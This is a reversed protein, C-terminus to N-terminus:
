SQLGTQASHRSIEDASRGPPMSRASEAAPDGAGGRHERNRAAAVGAAFNALLAVGILVAVIVGVPGRADAERLLFVLVAEVVLVAAGVSLVLAPVRSPLVPQLAQSLVGRWRLGPAPHTVGGRHLQATRTAGVGAVYNAFLAVALVVAVVMGVPDRGNAHLLRIVLCVEISVLLAGVALGIAVVRWPMLPRMLRPGSRSSRADAQ